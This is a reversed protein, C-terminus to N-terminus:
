KEGSEARKVMEDFVQGLMKKMPVLSESPFAKGKLLARWLAFIGGRYTTLRGKENENPHTFYTRFFADEWAQPNFKAAGKPIDINGTCIGGGNWVNFYPAVYLSTKATPKSKGKVAFVYWQGGMIIFVLGPHDAEANVEGFEKCKFWIGRKQPKCYWALHNSGKALIHSEFLTPKVFDDPTLTKFMEVLGSKSVAVGAGIVPKSDEISVRHTSAFVVNGPSGYNSARRYLLIADSLIYSEDEGSIASAFVKM